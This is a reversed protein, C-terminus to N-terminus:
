KRRPTPCFMNGEVGGEEGRVWSSLSNQRGEGMKRCGSCKIAGVREHTSSAYIVLTSQSFTYGASQTDHKGRLAFSSLGITVSFTCLTQNILILLSGNM